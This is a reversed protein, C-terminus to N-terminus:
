RDTRAPIQRKLLEGLMTRRYLRRRGALRVPGLRSDITRSSVALLQAEAMVDLHLWVHM